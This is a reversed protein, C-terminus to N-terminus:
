ESDHRKRMKEYCLVDDAYQYVTHDTVRHHRSYSHKNCKCAISWDLTTYCAKLAKVSQNPMLFLMRGTFISHHPASASQKCITWSIDSGYGFGMM